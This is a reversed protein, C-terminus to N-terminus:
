FGAPWNPPVSIKSATCTLKEVRGRWQFKYPEPHGKWGHYIWKSLRHGGPKCRDTFCSNGLSVHKCYSKDIWITLPKCRHAVWRKGKIYKNLLVHGASILTGIVVWTLINVIDLVASFFYNYINCFYNNINCFYKYINCFYNYINCFYNKRFFRSKRWSEPFHRTNM